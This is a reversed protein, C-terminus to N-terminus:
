VDYSRILCSLILCSDHNMSRLGLFLGAQDTLVTVNCIKLVRMELCRCVIVPILSKFILEYLISRVLLCRDKARSM